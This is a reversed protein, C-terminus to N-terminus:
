WDDNEIETSTSGNKIANEIEEISEIAKKHSYYFAKGYMNKDSGKKNFPYSKHIQTDQTSIRNNSDIKELYETLSILIRVRGEKIDIRAIHWTSYKVSYGFSIGYHIDSYLGKAVIIGQELNKQQIISNADGYNYVFYSLARNYIEEKTLDPVELISMYTVNNNDDLKYQGSISNILDLTKSSQTFCINVILFLTTFFIASKM